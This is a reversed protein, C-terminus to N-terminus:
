NTFPIPEKGAQKLKVISQILKTLWTRRNLEM